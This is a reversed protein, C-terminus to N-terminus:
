AHGDGRNDIPAMDALLDKRCDHPRACSRPDSQLAPLMIRNQSSVIFHAGRQADCDAILLLTCPALAPDTRWTRSPVLVRLGMGSRRCKPIERYCWTRPNKKDSIGIRDIYYRQSMRPTDGTKFREITMAPWLVLILRSSSNQFLKLSIALSRPMVTAANTPAISPSRLCTLRDDAM